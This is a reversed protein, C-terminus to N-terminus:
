LLTGDPVYPASLTVDVTAAEKPFAISKVLALVALKATVAVGVNSDNNSVPPVEFKVMM